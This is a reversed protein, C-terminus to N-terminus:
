VGKYDLILARKDLYNVSSMSIKCKKKVKWCDKNWIFEYLVEQINEINEPKLDLIHRICSYQLNFMSCLNEISLIDDRNTDMLYEVAEKCRAYYVISSEKDKNVYKIKVRKWIAENIAKLLVACFLRYESKCRDVSISDDNITVIDDVFITDDSHIIM